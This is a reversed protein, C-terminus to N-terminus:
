STQKLFKFNNDKGKYKQRSNSNKNSSLKVCILTNRELSFLKSQSNTKTIKQKSQLLLM